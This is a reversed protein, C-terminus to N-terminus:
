WPCAGGLPSPCPSRTCGWPCKPSPAQPGCSVPSALPGGLPLAPLRIGPAPSLHLAWYRSEKQTKRMLPALTSPM